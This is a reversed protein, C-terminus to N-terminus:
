IGIPLFDVQYAIGCDICVYMLKVKYLFFMGYAFSLALMLIKNQSFSYKMFASALAMMSTHLIGPFCQTRSNKGLGPFISAVGALSVLV